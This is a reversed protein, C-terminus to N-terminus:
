GNHNNETNANKVDQLTIESFGFKQVIDFALQVSLNEVQKLLGQKEKKLLETHKLLKNHLNKITKNETNDLLKKIQVKDKEEQQTILKETSAIIKNYEDLSHKARGNLQEAKQLYENIKRKRKEIIDALKPMVLFSLMLWLFVFCVLMWFAQSFFTSTDLQPM